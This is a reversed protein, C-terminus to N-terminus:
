SSVPVPLIPGTGREPAERVVAGRGAALSRSWSPAALSRSWSPAILDAEFEGAVDAACRAPDGDSSRLPSVVVLPTGVTTILALATHGAPM